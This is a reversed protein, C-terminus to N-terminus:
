KRKRGKIKVNLADNESFNCVAQYHLPSKQIDKADFDVTFQVFSEEYRSPEAPMETVWSFDSMLKVRHKIKEECLGWLHNIRARKEEEKRKEEAIRMAELEEPTPEVPVEVVTTLTEFTLGDVMENYNRGNEQKCLIRYIPHDPKSDDEDITGQQVSVCRELSEAAEAAKKLEIFLGAYKGPLWLRKDEVAISPSSILSFLATSAFIKYKVSPWRM